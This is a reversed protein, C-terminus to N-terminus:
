QAEDEVAQFKAELLAIKVALATSLKPIMAALRTGCVRDVYEVWQNPEMGWKEEDPLTNGERASLLSDYCTGPKRDCAEQFDESMVMDLKDVTRQHIVEAQECAEPRDEVAMSPAAVLVSLLILMTRM